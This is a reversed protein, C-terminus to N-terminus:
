KQQEIYEAIAGVTKVTAFVKPSLVVGFENEIESSLMALDMSCLGLDATLKSDATISDHEVDVFSCIIDKINELM